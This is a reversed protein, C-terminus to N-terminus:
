LRLPPSMRGKDHTTDAGWFLGFPSSKEIRNREPKSSPWVVVHGDYNFTHPTYLEIGMGCCRSGIATSMPAERTILPNVWVTMM